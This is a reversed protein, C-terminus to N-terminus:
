IAAPDDNILDRFHKDFLEQLCQKADANFATYGRMLERGKETIISYGGAKGGQKTIIVPYGSQQEMISIIARGKGYSIGMQRCAERLSGSEDILQLLQHAGPGYFIRERVLRIRVSPHIDAFGYEALPNPYYEGDRVNTLVGEDEVEVLRPQLGTAKMAGSLGGGGSWSLVESFLGSSLLIPHGTRGNCYPLRILGEAGILTRITKVSFLPVDTHTIMAAECKDQLYALGAKIYDLMEGAGQRHLFVVDMNAALKEATDREKDCVVVVREIGARQFVMVIRKIAPISGVIRGPEFNDSRTNKGAAVILAAIMETVGAM